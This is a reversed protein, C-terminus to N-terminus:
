GHATEEKRGARATADGHATGDGGLDMYDSLRTIEFIHRYHDTLGHARVQRGAQRADTLVTVILAIGSSNIYAVDSFDLLLHEPSHAVAETHAALLATDADANLDGSMHITASTGDRYADAHFSM